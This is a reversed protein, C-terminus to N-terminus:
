LQKMEEEIAAEDLGGVDWEVGDPTKKGWLNAENLFNDYTDRERLVLKRIIKVYSEDEAMHFVINQTAYNAWGDHEGTETGKLVGRSVFAKTYRSDEKCLRIADERVEKATLEESDLKDLIDKPDDWNMPKPKEGIAEMRSQLGSLNREFEDDKSKRSLYSVIVRYLNKM